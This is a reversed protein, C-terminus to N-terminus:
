CHPWCLVCNITWIRSRTEAKEAM